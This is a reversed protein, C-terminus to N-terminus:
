KCVATNPYNIFIVFQCNCMIFWKKLGISLLSVVCIRKLISEREKKREKERERERERERKREREGEREGEIERERVREHVCVFM